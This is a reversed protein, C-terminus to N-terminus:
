AEEEKKNFYNVDLEEMANRVREYSALASYHWQPNGAQPSNLLVSLADIEQRLKRFTKVKGPFTGELSTNVSRLVEKQGKLKTILVEERAEAVEHQVKAVGRFKPFIPREAMLPILIQTVVVWGVLLIVSLIIANIAIWM